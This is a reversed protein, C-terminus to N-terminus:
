APRRAPRAASRSEVRQGGPLGPAHLSGGNTCRRSPVRPNGTGLLRKPRGPLHVPIVSSMAPTGDRSLVGCRLTVNSCTKACSWRANRRSGPSVTSTSSSPSALSRSHIFCPDPSRFGSPHTSQRPSVPSRPLEACSPTGASRRLGQMSWPRWGPSLAPQKMVTPATRSDPDGMLARSPSSPATVTGPFEAGTAATGCGDERCPQTRPTNRCPEASPVSRQLLTNM